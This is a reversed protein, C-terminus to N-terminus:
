GERGGATAQSHGGAVRQGLFGEGNWPSGWLSHGLCGGALRRRRRTGAPVHRGRGRCVCLLFAPFTERAGAPSVLLLSDRLRIPSPAAAHCEGTARFIRKLFLVFGPADEIVIRTTVTHWGQPVFDTM